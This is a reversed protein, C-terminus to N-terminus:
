DQCTLEIPALRQKVLSKPGVKSGCDSERIGRSWNGAVMERAGADRDRRRLSGSSRLTFYWIPSFVNANELDDIMGDDRGQEHWEGRKRGSWMRYVSIAGREM